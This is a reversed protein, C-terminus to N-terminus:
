ETNGYGDIGEAAETGWIDLILIDCLFLSYSVAAGYTNKLQQM